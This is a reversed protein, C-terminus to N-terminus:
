YVQQIDINYLCIYRALSICYMQILGNKATSTVRVQENEDGTVDNKSYVDTIQTTKTTGGSM